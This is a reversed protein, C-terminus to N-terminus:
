GETHKTIRRYRYWGAGTLVTLVALVAMLGSLRRWATDSVALSEGGKMWVALVALQALCAVAPIYAFVQVEDLLMTFLLSGSVNVVQLTFTALLGLAAGTVALSAHMCGRKRTFPLAAGVAMLALGALLMWGDLRILGLAPVSDVPLGAAPRVVMDWLSVTQPYLAATEVGLQSHVYVKVTPLFLTAIAVALALFILGKKKM